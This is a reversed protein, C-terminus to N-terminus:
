NSQSPQEEFYFIETNYIKHFEVQNDSINSTAAYVCVFLLKKTFCDPPFPVIMGPIQLHNSCPSLIVGSETWFDMSKVYEDANCKLSHNSTVESSIFEVSVYKHCRSAKLTKFWDSHKCLSSRPTQKVVELPFRKVFSCKIENKLLHISQLGFNVFCKLLLHKTFKPKRDDDYSKGTM